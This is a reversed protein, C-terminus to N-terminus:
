RAQFDWKRVVEGATNLLEIWGFEITGEGRAPDIRIADLTQVPIDVNYEHLRGDHAVEFEVTRGAAPPNNYYLTGNGKSDSKMSFRVSFPGGKLAKFKGASLFPDGGTSNVMLHGDRQELSCTGGAKWGAVLGIEEQKAKPVGILEPRYQKPNFKPNPQPVVTKCDAIHEEIMRDLTKVKEPHSAAVNNKEGFDDALNYLLYKHAENEGQHFQRILKWDGAHVAISPPMWDPPAPPDHPFYTFIAKRNLKGGKLAPLIDIGDIPWDKPLDIELANLLTPYFDSTQIIEDSRSGPKTVGPWVVVTPVRIGGEYMTAKGGRLPDNSTPPDGEVDSYMNGGNDSTFVIITQKAVGAEDIADLLTGVADDLSHVMAAYIPCRQPDDPNMQNRYKEILEEKANFPAHVSFQWYNMFFPKKKVSGLWELAEEAMRDEIHEGSFNAKFDPYKWPAVFSGAPGPGPWHPIDIDFGHELPSYPEPGLHWKGFHATKYGAGKVMKGLTPFATDLRSASHPQISKDGPGASPRPEATLRAEKLHHQPATSGHRAPTQGTLISARTPSCLPSNSYARNFTMGRKALRELNPTKYYDTHGYLTTDAWGLDDALIFVVNMPKKAVSVGALGMLVGWILLRKLSMM